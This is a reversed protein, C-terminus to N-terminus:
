AALLAATSIVTSIANNNAAQETNYADSRSKKYAMEARQRLDFAQTKFGWAQRWANSRITNADSAIAADTDEQIKKASGSNLAVGSTGLAVRQKGQLKAASRLFKGRAQEGLDFADQAQQDAVGANFWYTSREYDGQDRMASAQKYGNQLGSVLSFLGGVATLADGSSSKEAM